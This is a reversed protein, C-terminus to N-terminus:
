KKIIDIVEGIYMRHISNELGNNRTKDYYKMAEEPFREVIMDDYYIKKCLFTTEAQEFTVSKELFKPTLDAEKVKDCDRGSKTGMVALAKRNEEPYFSVTFYDNDNMFKYTYRTPKVYVTIVPKGWLTGMGGWGITMSNFSDKTGATLLAWKEGFQSFVESQFEMKEGKKDDALVITFLGSLIVLLISSLILIINNRKM